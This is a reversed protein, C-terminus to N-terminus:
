LVNSCNHYCFVMESYYCTNTSAVIRYRPVGQIGLIKNLCSFVGYGMSACEDSCVDSLEIKHDFDAVVRLRM